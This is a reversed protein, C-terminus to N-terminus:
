LAAGLGPELPGRRRLHTPQLARITQGDNSPQTAMPARSVPTPRIRTQASRRIVAEREGGRRRRAGRAQDRRAGPRARRAAAGCAPGALAAMARQQRARLGQRRHAMARRAGSPRSACASATRRFTPTSRSSPATRGAVHHAAAAGRRRREPALAFLPQETGALFWESRAAELEDGFRVQAQVLGAPPAPARSPENRHLFGMVEAWVPAAGSTGSVDWM